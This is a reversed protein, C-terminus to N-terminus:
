TEVAILMFLEDDILLVDSYENATKEVAFSDWGFDFAVSKTSNRWSAM